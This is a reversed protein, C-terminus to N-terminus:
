GICKTREGPPGQDGRPGVPGVVGPPGAPGLPGPPGEPGVHGDRGDRGPTGRFTFQVETLNSADFLTTDAKCHQLCAPLLFSATIVVLLNM